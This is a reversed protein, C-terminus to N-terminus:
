SFVNDGDFCKTQLNKAEVILAEDTLLSSLETVKAWNWKGTDPHMQLYSLVIYILTTVQIYCLTATRKPILIGFLKGFFINKEFIKIRSYSEHLTCVTGMEKAICPGFCQFSFVRDIHLLLILIFGTIELQSMCLSNQYVYKPSGHVTPM